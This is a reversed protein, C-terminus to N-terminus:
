SSRCCRARRTRPHSRRGQSVLAKRVQANEHRRLALGAQFVFFDEFVLRRQAPTM